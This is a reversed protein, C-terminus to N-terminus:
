CSASEVGTQGASKDAINVERSFGFREFSEGFDTFIRKPTVGIQELSYRHKSSYGKAKETEDTLYELMADNLPIGFRSYIDSVLRGPDSVLDDYKIIAQRNAPLRDLQQVPYMQWHTIGDLILETQYPESFRHSSNFHISMWSIASPVAQLPNRVMCLYKSTPFEQCLSQVKCSFAPNKSVIQKHAGFVYLHRQLCARYFRMVRRRQWEPLAQDFFTLYRMEERFPFTFAQFTSCFVHKLLIEDEEPKLFSIDHMQRAKSFIREEVRLLLKLLPGGIARDLRALLLFLKKQVISPAFLLEWLRLSTVNEADQALMRHMHTTGSRPFGVIFIPDRVEIKRFGPFFVHDMALFLWMVAEVVLYLPLFVLRVFHKLTWHAGTKSYCFISKLYVRITLKLCFM